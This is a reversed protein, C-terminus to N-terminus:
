ASSEMPEIGSEALIERIEAVRNMTYLHVGPVEMALLDRIQDAAYEMGAKRLDARNEGHKEFIRLLRAPVSIGCMYIIRKIQRFNLVPMVGPIVPVQVGMRRVRHLFDCFIRNDFFVQTILFDAGADVKQKLRDLDTHISPSEIHGEPYAAAGICFDGRRKVEAILQFAHDFRSKGKGPEVPSDGRLALVNEVGRRNLNDLIGTIERKEHSLCTLHALSELGYDSRIRAAIEVTRRGRHASANYTVSIYGPCLDVLGDLTDFVSELPYGPKPPFVELSFVPKTESYLEAIRM